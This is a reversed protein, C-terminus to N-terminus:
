CLPLFSSHQISCFLIFTSTLIQRLVYLLFIHIAYFRKMIELFNYIIWFLHSFFNFLPSLSHPQCTHSNYFSSPMLQLDRLCRRKWFDNQFKCQKVCVSFFNHLSNRCWSRKVISRASNMADCDCVSACWRAHTYKINTHPM